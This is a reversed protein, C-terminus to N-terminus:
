QCVVWRISVRPKMGLFIGIEISYWAACYGISAHEAAMVDVGLTISEVQAVFIQSKVQRQEKPVITSRDRQHNPSTQLGNPSPLMSALSTIDLYYVFYWKTIEEQRYRSRKLKIGQPLRWRKTGGYYHFPLSLPLSDTRITWPSLCWDPLRFITKTCCYRAHGGSRTVHSLM